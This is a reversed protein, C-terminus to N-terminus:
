LNTEEREHVWYRVYFTRNELSGMRRKKCLFFVDVEHRSTSTNQELIVFNYERLYTREEEKVGVLSKVSSTKDSNEQIYYLTRSM